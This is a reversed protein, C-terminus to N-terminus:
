PEAFFSDELLRHLKSYASGYEKRKRDYYDRLTATNADEMNAEADAACISLAHLVTEVQSQTLELKM